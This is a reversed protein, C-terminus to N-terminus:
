PLKVAENDEASVSFRKGGHEYVIRLEKRVGPCPDCFGFLGAKTVGRNLELRGNDVLFQVATTVDVILDEQASMFREDADDGNEDRSEFNAGDPAGDDSGGFSGYCAHVIVLGGREEEARRKRQAVNHLLKRAAAAEQRSRRIVEANEESSTRAKWHELLRHLPEIGRTLMLVFLPPLAASIALVKVDFVPTLQIPFVFKHGSRNFRLKLM